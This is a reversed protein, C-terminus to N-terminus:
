AGKGRLVVKREPKIVSGQRDVRWAPSYEAGYPIGDIKFQIGLWKAVYALAIVRWHPFPQMELNAPHYPRM